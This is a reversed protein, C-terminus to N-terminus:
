SVSFEKIRNGSAFLFIEIQKNLYKVEESQALQPKQSVFLGQPGLGLSRVRKNGHSEVPRISPPNRPLQAKLHGIALTGFYAFLFFQIFLTNFRGFSTTQVSTQWPIYPCVWGFFIFNVQLLLLLIFGGGGREGFMYKSFTVMQGSVHLCLLRSIQPPKRSEEQFFLPDHKPFHIQACKRVQKKVIM